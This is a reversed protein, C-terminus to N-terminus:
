NKNTNSGKRLMPLMGRLAALLAVLLLGLACFAITETVKLSQPRFTFTITHSGAPLLTARLVYNARVIELPEGDITACWGPYYIESFVAMGGEASEVEYTLANPEYATLTIARLSDTTASTTAFTGFREDIVATTSLDVRGLADLEENANAVSRVEDVFWANGLAHPNPLPITAGGQLPFIFWRTNLMNIVPSLKGDMEEMEGQVRVVEDFLRDMEPSIHADILEQYRRLKAAHYGGISKHHYSTQNENFTNSALNLVRYDLATDALIEKDTLTLAFTTTRTVPEVYNDDNLYRKNVGWMDVLCLLLIAGVTYDGKMRGTLFLALLGTGIAIVAVSRWADAVLIARRMETLNMLIPALHEELGSNQLAYLENSSIFSPFIGPALAILLAVGGTLALSVIFAWRKEKWLAPREMVERLGMLALLPITFEAIVLISSVARFKDYLPVYDLFLDTFPMFNKGWSLLLSLLTALLLAWKLPGKM